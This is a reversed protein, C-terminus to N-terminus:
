SNVNHSETTRPTGEQGWAGHGTSAGVKLITNVTRRQQHCLCHLLVGWKRKVETQALFIIYKGGCTVMAM